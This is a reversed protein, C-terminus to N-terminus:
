AGTEDPGIAVNALLAAVEAQRACGTKELVRRLQTRVTTIAVGGETAIEDLAKGSAVGRAVRAESLTLDFLSKLLDSSPVRESSVPTLLVLAYSRGFIEQASRKVPMVHLIVVAKGTEDRVPFSRPVAHESGPVKIAQLAATLMEDARKDAIRLRDNGTPLILGPMEEALENAEVVIGNESVLVAPLRLRTLADAAGEARQLQLRSTVLASRALHPRLTNLLEVYENEIPGREYDREISFVINDGTPLSLGTGASWGLGHPVFFDRYIPERALQEETWFDQEVFFGPDDQGMICVRRKCHAFWGETVYEEFVDRVTNSATWHLVRRASFLLGGRSETRDSLEDLVAPWLEPVVACEYIRDVLDPQMQKAELVNSVPRFVSGWQITMPLRRLNRVLLGGAATQIAPLSGLSLAGQNRAARSSGPSFYGALSRM